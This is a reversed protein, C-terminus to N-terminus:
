PASRSAGTVMPCLGATMPRFAAEAAITRLLRYYDWPYRSEALSKVQFVHMPTLLRGDARIRAPAFLPDTVPLAKMTEVVL